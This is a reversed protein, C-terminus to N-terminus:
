RVPLSQHLRFVNGPDYRAKVRLLRDHNSGYYADAWNDLDPDPFNPFVGGTGWRHVSAWSRTAWRHAAQKAATSAAPDVVVAHKLSYLPDRHVFATADAPVRNYAGGWPSFDLERAQGATRGETLYGMRSVLKASSAEWTGTGAVGGPGHGAQAVEEAQGRLVRVVRSDGGELYYRVIAPHAAMQGDLWSRGPWALPFPYRRNLGDFWALEKDTPDIPVGADLQGAAAVDDPVDRSVAGAARARPTARM